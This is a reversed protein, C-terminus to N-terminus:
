NSFYSIKVRSTLFNSLQAIEFILFIEQAKLKFLLINEALFDFKLNYDKVSYFPLFKFHFINDGGGGAM